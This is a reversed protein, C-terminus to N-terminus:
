ADHHSGPHVNASAAKKYFEPNELEYGDPAGYYRIGRPSSSPLGPRGAASLAEPEWGPGEAQM